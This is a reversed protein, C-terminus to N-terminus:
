GSPGANEVVDPDIAKQKKRRKKKKPEEDVDGGINGEVVDDQKAKEKDSRKRHKSKPQNYDSGNELGGEEVNDDQGKGKKGKKKKQNMPDHTTNGMSVGQTQSNDQASLNQTEDHLKTFEEEEKKKKLKREEDEARELAEKEARKLKTMNIEDKLKAPGMVLVYINYALNGVIILILSTILAVGAGFKINREPTADSFIFIAIILVSYFTENALVYSNISPSQFPKFAVMYLIYAHSSMLIFVYQLFIFTNDIPLTLLIATLMRRGFFYSPNIIRYKSAKDLKLLLTNFPQKAEKVKLIEFRRFIMWTLLIPIIVNIIFIVYSALLLFKRNANDNEGDMIKMLSFFTAGFYCLMYARIYVNYKFQLLAKDAWDGLRRGRLLKSMLLCVGHGIITMTFVFVIGVGSQLMRAVSLKYYRYNDNFFEQDLIPMFPTEDFIILHSVLAPKFADYLYPILRFNYIPMFAVLQLYEILIWMPFLGVGRFVLLIFQVFILAIVVYYMNAAVFRFVKMVSNDMDFILEMRREITANANAALRTETCNVTANVKFLNCYWKESGEYGKIMKFQLFDSRKKLLGINYPKEFTMTFNVTRNDKM